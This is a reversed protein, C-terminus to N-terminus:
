CSQIHWNTLFTDLHSFILHSELCINQVHTCHVIRQSELARRDGILACLSVEWWLDSNQSRRRYPFIGGTAKLAGVWRKHQNRILKKKKEKKKQQVTFSYLPLTHRKTCYLLLKNHIFLLTFRVLTCFSFTPWDGRKSLWCKVADVMLFCFLNPLM